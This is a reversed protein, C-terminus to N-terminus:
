KDDLSDNNYYYNPLISEKSEIQKHLSGSFYHSNQNMIETTIDWESILHEQKNEEKGFSYKNNNYELLLLDNDLIKKNGILVSEENKDETIFKFTVLQKDKINVYANCDTNKYDDYNEFTKNILELYPSYVFHISDIYHVLLTRPLLECDIGNFRSTHSYILTNTNNKTFKMVNEELNPYEWPTFKLEIVNTEENYMQTIEKLEKTNNVISENPIEGKYDKNHILASVLYYYAEFWNSAEKSTVYDYDNLSHNDLQEATGVLFDGCTIHQYLYYTDM